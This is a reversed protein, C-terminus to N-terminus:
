ADNSKIGPISMLFHLKEKIEALSCTPPEVGTFMYLAKLEDSCSAQMRGEYGVIKRIMNMKKWINEEGLVVEQSPCVHNEASSCKYPRSEKEVSSVLVQMSNTHRVVNSSGENLDIIYAYEDHDIQNGDFLDLASENAIERAEADLPYMGENLEHLQSEQNEFDFNNNDLKENPLTIPRPLLRKIHTYLMMVQGFVCRKMCCLIM